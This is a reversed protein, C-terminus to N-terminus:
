ITTIDPCENKSIVESLIKDVEEALTIHNKRMIISLGKLAKMCSDVHKTSLLKQVEELAEIEDDRYTFIITSGVLIGRRM